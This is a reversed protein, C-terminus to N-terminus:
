SNNKRIAEITKTVGDFFPTNARLPSKCVIGKSYGAPSDMYYPKTQTGYIMNITDVIDNFSKSEGTGVDAIGTKDRRIYELIQSVVDDIFIFDRTQTGDGWIVPQNGIRMDEAWQHIVTRYHKPKTEEGPGFVPFIRLGLAKTKYANQLNELAMKFHRFKLPKDTEYVLASSPWIYYINNRECYDLMYLFNNIISRAYYDTNIEFAMHTPSGFDLVVDTDPTPFSTIKYGLNQLRAYLASGIFGHRGIICFNKANM